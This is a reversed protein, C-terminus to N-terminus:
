KPLQYEDPYYYYAVSVLQAYNQYKEKQPLNGKRLKPGVLYQSQSQVYLKAYSANAALFYIPPM